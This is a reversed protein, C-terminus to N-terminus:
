PVGGLGQNRNAVCVCLFRLMNINTWM